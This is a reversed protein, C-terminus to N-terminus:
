RRKTRIAFLIVACFAIASGFYLIASDNTEPNDNILDKPTGVYFASNRPIEIFGDALYDSVRTSYTGGRIFGKIDESIVAKDGSTNFTPEGCSRDIQISIKSIDEESNGNPNTEAFPIIASFQGNCISVNINDKTTHQAIAVAAGKTTTGSTNNTVEYTESDSIFTGGTITLDGARLEIATTKGRITGGAITTKGRFQPAYIAGAADSLLTGGNINFKAYSGNSSNNEEIAGNSLLASSYTHVMGGNLTFEGDRYVVVGNGGNGESRAYLAEITGGNM